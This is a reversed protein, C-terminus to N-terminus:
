MAETEPLHLIGFGPDPTVLVISILAPLNRFLLAELAKMLLDVVASTKPVAALEVAIM